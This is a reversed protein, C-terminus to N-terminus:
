RTQRCETAARGAIAERAAHPKRATELACLSRLRANPPTKRHGADRAIGADSAPLSAAATAGSLGGFPRCSSVCVRLARTKRRRTDIGARRTRGLSLPAF